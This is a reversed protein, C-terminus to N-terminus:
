ADLTRRAFSEIYDVLRDSADEARQRDRAAIAEAVDAHLKAAQPMDGVQRYHQYWFRRSLGQMLGLSRRAYENRAADTFLRNFRDDLRMFSIDDNDSAAARMRAALDSFETREDATARVAALGAMMRELVRRVELLRLQARLDIESVMIGRRPMIVVLGERALRHLAERVPTRGIGLRGALATESIVLGPPLQLTVILEEIQRYARDTLTGSSPQDNADQATDM